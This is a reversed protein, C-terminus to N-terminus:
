FHLGFLTEGQKRYPTTSESVLHRSIREHLHFFRHFAVRDLRIVSLQGARPNAGVLSLVVQLCHCRGGVEGPDISAGHSEETSLYQSVQM